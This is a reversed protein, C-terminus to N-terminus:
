RRTGSTVEVRFRDRARASVRVRVRVRVLSTLPRACDPASVRM